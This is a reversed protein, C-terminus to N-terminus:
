CRRDRIGLRPFGDWLGSRLPDPTRWPQRQPSGVLESLEPELLVQVPHGDSDTAAAQHARKPILAYHSPATLLVASVSLTLICFSARGNQPGAKSRALAATSSTKKRFGNLKERLATAQGRPHRRPHRVRSGGCPAGVGCSHGHGGVRRPRTPASSRRMQRSSSRRSPRLDTLMMVLRDVGIGVGSTPPAAM